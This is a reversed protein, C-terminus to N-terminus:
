RRCLCSPAAFGAPSRAPPRPPRRSAPPCSRRSTVGHRRSGAATRSCRFCSGADRAGRQPRRSSAARVTVEGEKEGRGQRSRAKKEAGGKTPDMKRLMAEDPGGGFHKWYLEKFPNIKPIDTVNENVLFPQVETWWQEYAARLKAVVEPHEAIVNKTEGPDAQLDYLEKNHVLTFRSNQIAPKADKADAAKGEAWRGLHHVLTRDAWEAKPNKLLPVLSRGEVQKRVEDSLKAGTIEALTPFIDLHDSLAATEGGGKIGGAPWRFFTPVRTGGQFVTGKGGKMGAAFIKRGDTGGNDSGFYIVLTNDAINWEDIKKLLVGFNTDINEIM